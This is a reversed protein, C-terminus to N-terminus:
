GNIRGMVPVAVWLALVMLCYLVVVVLTGIADIRRLNTGTPHLWWSFRDSSWPVLYHLLLVSAVNGIFLAIAFPLGARRILYPSQVLAGFLFVVPYLMLLVLMNQKWAAPPHAASAATSFWQDFGTRAIRTHFEETFANAERLLKQREPSNLWAQLDAETDFRLIALWDDQVGPVPPEFRYGQFGPAKSQAVAIRQEWARYALEQGRKIRTSIVASIPAPLVGAKDDKVLHVDDSGVLMTAVSEVRQSRQESNLWAIAAEDSAFRQLIVWDVQAPPSPPIVTQKIFGPFAAVVKSSEDQWCAFADASEPRVRTQTVITVPRKSAPANAIAPAVPNLAYGGQAKAGLPDIRDYTNADTEASPFRRHVRVRDGRRRPRADHPTV